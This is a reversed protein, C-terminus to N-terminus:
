AGMWAHYAMSGDTYPCSSARKSNWNQRAELDRASWTRGDDMRAPRPNAALWEAGKRASGEKIAAIEIDSYASRSRPRGMATAACDLGRLGGDSLTVAKKVSRGCACCVFVSDEDAHFEIATLTTNVNRGM